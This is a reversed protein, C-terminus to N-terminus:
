MGQSAREEVRPRTLQEVAQTVIREVSYHETSEERCEQGAEALHEM